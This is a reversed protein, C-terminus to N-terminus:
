QATSNIRRRQQFEAYFEDVSLIDPPMALTQALRTIQPPLISAASLLPADRFIARPTDDALIHGEQLVVVRAAFEAVLRMDHTIFVITDGAHNQASALAFVEQALKADLGSTPEDLVWVRPRM